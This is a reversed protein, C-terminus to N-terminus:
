KILLRSKGEVLGAGPIDDGVKLDALLKRLDAKVSVVTNKYEDPLAELDVVEAKKTPKGLTVSFLPHKIKTIGSREMNERLYEKLGDVGNVMAKKREQLRKIQDDIAAVDAGVNQVVALINHAKDEFAMEISELCDALQDDPIDSDQIAVFDSAIEYLKM